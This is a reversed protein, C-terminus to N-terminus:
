RQGPVDGGLLWDAFRDFKGGSGSISSLRFNLSDGPLPSYFPLSFIM